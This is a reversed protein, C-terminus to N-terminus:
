TDGNKLTFEKELDDDDEIISVEKSNTDLFIIEVNFDEVYELKNKVKITMSIQQHEEWSFTKTNDQLNDTISSIELRNGQDGSSCYDYASTLSILALLSIALTLTKNM